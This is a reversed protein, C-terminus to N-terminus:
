VWGDTRRSCPWQKPQLGLRLVGDCIPAVPGWIGASMFEDYVTQQTTETVVTRYEKFWRWQAHVALMTGLITLGDIAAEVYDAPASLSAGVIRNSGTAKVYDRTM